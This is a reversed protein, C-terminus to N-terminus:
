WLEDAPYSFRTCALCFCRSACFSSTSVPHPDCKREMRNPGFVHCFCDSFEQVIIVPVCGRRLSKLPVLIQNVFDPIRLDRPVIVQLWVHELDLLQGLLAVRIGLLCSTLKNNRGQVIQQNKGACDTMQRNKKKKFFIRTCHCLQLFSVLPRMKNPTEMGTCLLLKCFSLVAETAKWLTKLTETCLVLHHFSM